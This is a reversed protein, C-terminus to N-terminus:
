RKISGFKAKRIERAIGVYSIVGFYSGKYARVITVQRGYSTFAMVVPAELISPEEVTLTIHCTMVKERPKRCRPPVYEKIYEFEKNVKM